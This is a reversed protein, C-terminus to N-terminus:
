ASNGKNTTCKASWTTALDYLPAYLTHEKSWEPTNSLYEVLMGISQFWAVKLGFGERTLLHLSFGDVVSGTVRYTGTEAIVADDHIPLEDIVFM